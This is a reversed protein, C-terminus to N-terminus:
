SKVASHKLAQQQLAWLIHEKVLESAHKLKANLADCIAENYPANGLAIAINRQWCQHGIRRIASGETASLFETESWDFLSLLDIDDLQHRPAFDPCETQRAFRNWPCVLQCDDCGFIRNGMLPRLEEDIVGRHEITLYSICRRADLQYPGTFAQTPCIDLCARCSGCHERAYPASLPLPLDTYIEGLFFWSGGDRSILMTNKGIWGQGSKEAYARELVPASDVFARYHGGAAQEMRAALRALRKRMLKHYDRGLAYRSVYAKEGQELLAMPEASAPLYDMLVTIVRLVGPLLQDPNDRLHQHKRMYGMNGHHGRDLWQQLQQAHKGPDADSIALRRFGLEGAWGPILEALGDMDVPNCPNASDSM